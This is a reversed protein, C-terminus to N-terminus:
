VHVCACMHHVLHIKHQLWDQEICFTKRMHVCVCVCVSVCARVCACMCACEHMCAHMCVCVCASVFACMCVCSCVRVCACVCCVAAAVDQGLIYPCQLPASNIYLLIRTNHTIAQRYYQYPIIINRTSDCCQQTTQM